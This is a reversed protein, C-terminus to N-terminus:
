GLLQLLSDVVADAGLDAAEIGQSYGYSVVIVPIGANRAADVDAGSDGVMACEPPTLGLSQIAVLLPAPDPKKQALSDGSLVVPFFQQLGYHRLLRDTFRGPKNTVCAMAIGRERLGVLAQTVGPYVVTARCCHKEYHGFFTDLGTQLLNEPVQQPLCRTAAALARRLLMSAGNGVWMRVAEQGAPPLQMQLLTADVADALDPVSDVLTGDLDFLL